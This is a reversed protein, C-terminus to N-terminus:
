PRYGALPKVKGPILNIDTTGIISHLKDAAASRHTLQPFAPTKGPKDM